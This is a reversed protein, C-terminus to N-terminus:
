VKYAVLSTLFVTSSTKTLGWSPQLIRVPSPRECRLRNCSAFMLHLARLCTTTKWVLGLYNFFLYRFGFRSGIIRQYRFLLRSITRKSAGKRHSIYGEMVNLLSSCGDNTIPLLNDTVSLDTTRLPRNLGREYQITNAQITTRTLLQRRQM